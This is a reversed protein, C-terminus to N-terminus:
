PPYVVHDEVEEPPRPSLAAYKDFLIEQIKQYIKEQHNRLDNKINQIKTGLWKEKAAPLNSRIRITMKQSMKVLLSVCLASIALMKATISKVVKFYEFGGGLILQISYSNYIMIIEFIKGGAQESLVTFYQM